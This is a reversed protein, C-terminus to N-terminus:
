KRGGPLSCNAHQGPAQFWWQSFADSTLILHATILGPRGLGINDGQRIRHHDSASSKQLFTPAQAPIFWEQANGALVARANLAWRSPSRTPCLRHRPALLTRVTVLAQSIAVAVSHASIAPIHGPHDNAFASISCLVVGQPCITVTLLNNIDGKREIKLCLSGKKRM